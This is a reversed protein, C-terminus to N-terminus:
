VEACSKELVVQMCGVDPSPSLNENAWTCVLLPIFGCATALTCFEHSTFIQWEMHDGGLEEHEDSYSLVSHWRNGQLYRQSKVTIGDIVQETYGQHHEFYGRNYLDVVFRGGPTLKHFISRLLAANTKEDFFCLNQWMNIVADFEGLLEDLRLM